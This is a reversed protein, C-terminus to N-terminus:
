TRVRSSFAFSEGEFRTTLHPSVTNIKVLHKQIKVGYEGQPVKKKKRTVQENNEPLKPVRMFLLPDTSLPPGKEEEEFFLDRQVLVVGLRTGTRLRLFSTVSEFGCLFLLFM